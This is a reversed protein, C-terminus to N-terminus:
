NRQVQFSVVLNHRLLDGNGKGKRKEEVREHQRDRDYLFWNVIGLKFKIYWGVIQKLDAMGLKRQRWFKAWRQGFYISVLKGVKIRKFKYPQCVGGLLSM